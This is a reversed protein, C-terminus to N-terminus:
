PRNIRIPKQRLIDWLQPYTRIDPGTYPIGEKMRSKMRLFQEPPKNVSYFLPMFFMAIHYTDPFTVGYALKIRRHIESSEKKIVSVAAGLRKAIDAHVIPLHQKGHIQTGIKREKEIECYARLIKLHIYDLKFKGSAVFFKFLSKELDRAQDSDDHFIHPGIPMFLGEFRCIESYANIQKIIRGHEDLSLPMSLHKIWVFDGSQKMLPVNFIYGSSLPELQFQKNGEFIRLALLDLHLYMERYKDHISKIAEYHTWDKSDYGLLNELGFCWEYHLNRFDLITYGIGHHRLREISKKLKEIKKDSYGTFQSGFQQHLITYPEVMKKYDFHSFEM